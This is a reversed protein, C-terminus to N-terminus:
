TYTRQENKPVLIRWGIHPARIDRYVRVAGDAAPMEPTADGWVQWVDWGESVDSIQFKTRLKFRRVFQILDAATTADLEVLVGPESAHPIVHFFADAMVRGQPNLFAAYFADQGQAFSHTTVCKELSQINQTISGQLFKFVEPGKFEYVARSPLKCAHLARVGGRACLARVGGPHVAARRAGLARWM